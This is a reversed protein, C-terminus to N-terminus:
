FFVNNYITSRKRMFFEDFKIIYPFSKLHHIIIYQSKKCDELEYLSLQKCIIGMSHPRLSTQVGETLILRALCVHSFICQASTSMIGLSHLINFNYRLFSLRTKIPLPILLLIRHLTKLLLPFKLFRICTRLITM